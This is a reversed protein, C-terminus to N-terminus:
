HLVVLHMFGNTRMHIQAISHPSFLQHVQLSDFVDTEVDLFVIKYIPTVQSM